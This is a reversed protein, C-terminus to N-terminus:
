GDAGASVSKYFVTQRFQPGPVVVVIASPSATGKLTAGDTGAIVEVIPPMKDAVDIGSELVSSTGQRIDAIYANAPLGRVQIKYNGEAVAPITFSGDARPMQSRDSVGQYNPFKLATGLAELSVRLNTGFKSTDGVVKFVGNVNVSPHVVLRVNEL